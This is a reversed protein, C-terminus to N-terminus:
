ALYRNLPKLNIVPRLKGNKKPVLFLTSYFGKHANQADVKEIADKLILSNIEQLILGQDRVPVVTPRIGTDQPIQLFELKYGEKITSLVWQDSTIKEWNKQFLRM